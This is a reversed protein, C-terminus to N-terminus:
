ELTSKEIYIKKADRSDFFMVAKYPRPVLLGLKM